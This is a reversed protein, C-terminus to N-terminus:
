ICSTPLKCITKPFRTKDAQNEKFMKAKEKITKKALITSESTIRRLNDAKKM